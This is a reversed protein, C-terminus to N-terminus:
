QVGTYKLELGGLFVMRFLPSEYKQLPQPSILGWSWEIDELKTM